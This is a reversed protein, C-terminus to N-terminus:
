EANKGGDIYKILLAEEGKVRSLKGMVIDKDLELLEKELDSMMKSNYQVMQSYYFIFCAKKIQNNNLKQIKDLRTLKDLYEDKTASEITFGYGKYYADGALVCPIGCCSYEIGATGHVTVIVDAINKLSEGSYEEPFIKVNDINHKEILKNAEDSEGYLRRSPHLKLIWNVNNITKATKLVEELWSYYDRFLLNSACHNWDSFCHAMIVVNKKTDDLELMRNFEDKNLVMKDKYACVTDKDYDGRYREDLLGMALDYTEDESKKDTLYLEKMKDRIIDHWYHSYNGKDDQMIRVPHGLACEIVKAGYQAAVDSILGEDYCTHHTLYYAPKDKKFQKSCADILCLSYVINKIHKKVKLRNITWIGKDPRRILTDYIYEGVNIGKYDFALLAEGTRGVFILKLAYLTNKILMYPTIKDRVVFEQYKYHNIYKKSFWKKQGELSIISYEKQEYKCINSAVESAYLNYILSNSYNGIYMNEIESM